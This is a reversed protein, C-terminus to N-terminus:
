AVARLIEQYDPQEAQRQSVWEWAISGVQDVVFVSRQAVGSGFSKFAEDVVGYLRIVEHDFDSLLPFDLANEKKYQRLAYPLDVSIGLVQADARNLQAMSDRLTCMEATCTGSFAAPFFAVVAKRGRFDHLSVPQFETNQLTFEPAAEGVQPPRTQVHVM